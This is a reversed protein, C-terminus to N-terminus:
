SFSIGTRKLNKWVISSYSVSGFESSLVLMVLYWICVLVGCPFFSLWGIGKIFVFASIRWLITGLSLINFYDYFYKM